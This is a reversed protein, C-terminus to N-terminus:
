ILVDHFQHKNKYANIVNVTTTTVEINFDFNIKTNEKLQNLKTELSLDWNGGGNGPFLQLVKITQPEAGEKRGQKAYGNESTHIYSNRNSSIELKWTIIKYYSEPLKRTLTYEQSVPHIQRLLIMQQFNVVMM